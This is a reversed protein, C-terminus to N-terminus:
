VFALDFSKGESVLRPLVIQSEEPHYGVMEAVGAEDLVQLGCNAFRTAQYPDMVVHQATVDGNRLLGECIFLASIGYGLSIEITSTAGIRTVWEQLAEGEAASAAVPFLTHVSGDSRAIVTGDRVLRTIVDRVRRVAAEQDSPSTLGM